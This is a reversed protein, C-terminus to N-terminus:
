ECANCAVGLTTKLPGYKRYSKNVEAAKKNNSKYIHERSSSISFRAPTYGGLSTIAWGKPFGHRFLRSIPTYMLSKRPAGLLYDTTVAKWPHSRYSLSSLLYVLNRTLHVLAVRGRGFRGVSRDWIQFQIGFSLFIEIKNFLMILFDFKKM